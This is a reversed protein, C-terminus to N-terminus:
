DRRARRERRKRALWALPALALVLEAGLGCASRPYPTERPKWSNLCHPDPDAIQSGWISVGGDFDVMGDGDNDV